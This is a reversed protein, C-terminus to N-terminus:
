ELDRDFKHFKEVLDGIGFYKSKLTSVVLENEGSIWLVLLYHYEEDECYYYAQLDYLNRHTSVTQRTVGWRKSLEIGRIFFDKINPKSKTM